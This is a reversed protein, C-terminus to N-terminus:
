FGVPYPADRDDINGWNMYRWTFKRVANDIGEWWYHDLSGSGCKGSVSIGLLMKRSSIDFFIGFLNVSKERKDLSSVIFVLGIGETEKLTYGAIVKKVALTDYVMAIAPVPVPSGLAATTKVPFNKELRQSLMHGDEEFFKEYYLPILSSRLIDEHTPREMIIEAFRFDLGYLAVSPASFVDTRTYQKQGSIGTSLGLVLTLLLLLHRM